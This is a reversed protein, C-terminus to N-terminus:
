FANQSKSSHTRKGILMIVLIVQVVGGLGWKRQADDLFPYMWLGTLRAYIYVDM